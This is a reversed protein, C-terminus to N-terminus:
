KLKWHFCSIYKPTLKMYNPIAKWALMVRFYVLLAPMPPSFIFYNALISAAIIFVLKFAKFLDNSLHKKKKPISQSMTGIRPSRPVVLMFSRAHICQIVQYNDRPFRLTSSYTSEQFWLIKRTKGWFLHYNIVCCFILFFDIKKKNWVCSAIEIGVLKFCHAISWHHHGFM